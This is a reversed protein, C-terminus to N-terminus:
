SRVRAIIRSDGTPTKLWCGLIDGLWPFRQLLLPAKPGYRGTVVAGTTPAQYEIELDGLKQRRVLQTSATEVGGILSTPNGSLALALESVARTYAATFDNGCCNKTEDWCLAALWANAETLQADPDTVAAWAAERVTGSFYADAAVTDIVPLTM